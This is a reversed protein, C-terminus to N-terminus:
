DVGQRVYEALVACIERLVNHPQMGPDAPAPIGQAQRYGEKQALLLARYIHFNNSLIGVKQDKLSYVQDSYRLNERTSTSRDELFLRERDMGRETLYNYMCQAESIGEDPGKGGSLIFKTGPNEKAYDLARDLRKRLARSPSTGRVQAGLVIVYDLGPDPEKGMESVIRSGVAVAAAAGALILVFAAGTVYRLMTGPHAEQYVLARWLLLFVAGGVLWIPSFSTTFGAYLGIGLYYVMCLIGLTLCGYQLIQKM